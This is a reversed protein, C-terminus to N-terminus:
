KTTSLLFALLDILERETLKKELGEPMTSVPHTVSEDITDKEIEHTKGQTDGLTISNENEAIVVGSLVRGDTLIVSRTSYSPAITRSPLLISEILHIRSFRSGIGALDPGIRPGDNGIRHCRVCQSKDANMFVERGRNLNGRSSLLQSTLREHEVKSSK